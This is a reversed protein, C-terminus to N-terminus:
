IIIWKGRRLMREDSRISYFSEVVQFIKCHCTIQLSFKRLYIYKFYYKFYCFPPFKSIYYVLFYIHLKATFRLDNAASIYISTTSFKVAFTGNGVFIERRDMTLSAENFNRAWRMLQDDQNTYTDCFFPTCGFTYRPNLLIKRNLRTCEYGLSGACVNELRLSVVEFCRLLRKEAHTQDLPM